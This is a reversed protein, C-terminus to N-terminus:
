RAQTTPTGGAAWAKMGGTVNRAELGAKAALKTATASRGGAACLFAVPQDKPLEFLRAPLTALPIHTSPATPALAQREDVERVDVLTLQGDIALAAATSPDIQTSASKTRFM